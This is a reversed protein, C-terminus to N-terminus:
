RPEDGRKAATCLAATLVGLTFIGVVACFVVLGIM